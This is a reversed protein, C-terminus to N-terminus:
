RARSRTECSEPSNRLGIASLVGLGYWGSQRTPQDDPKAPQTGPPLRELKVDLQATKGVEVAFAQEYNKFGEGYVQVYHRGPDLPGRWQFFALAKGDIAIAANPDNTTVVAFGGTAELAFDVPM